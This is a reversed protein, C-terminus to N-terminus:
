GREKIPVNTRAGYTGYGAGYAGYKMLVKMKGNMRNDMTELKNKM